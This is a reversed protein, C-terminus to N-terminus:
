KSLQIQRYMVCTFAAKRGRHRETHVMLRMDINFPACPMKLLTVAVPDHPHSSDDLRHQVQVEEVVVNLALEISLVDGQRLLYVHALFCSNQYFGSVIFWALLKFQKGDHQMAKSPQLCGADSM